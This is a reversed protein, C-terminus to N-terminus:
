AAEAVHTGRGAHKARYLMADARSMLDAVGRDGSAGFAIGVSAGIGIDLSLSALEIPLAAATVVRSAVAEAHAAEHAGCLIVAFEDGGLRAVADQPRVLRQLREAFVRLVADGVPHGHRDNVAKFHDLDIFLLAMSAGDGDSLRRRVHAEFGARNLVGTLADRETLTRLREEEQRHASIDQAVGVFGDLTGNPLRLPVFTISLHQHRGDRSLAKEYTVEHGALARAIWPRTRAFEHEGLVEHMTMERLRDRGLGTWHEFASNVMRFREDRGVVYVMHPIAETVLQLTATQRQVERRDEVRQTIDQVAGVLRIPRGDELEVEGVLRVWLHRGTFTVLPLELDWPEGQSIARDLVQRLLPRADEGYFDIATDLSPAFGEPVEHLRHTQASWTLRETRLDVEWGGVGAVRGTRRLMQESEGLSTEYETRISMARTVLDRRMVLAQSAIAALSVLMQTQREDLMQSRRDLVCLTGVREGGPMVLPAGAYFRISDGLVAPHSAFRDDLTADPVEFVDDSAIAYNCFAIDRPTENVGPMGLNAKFWQREEDVLSLLAIPSGCIESAMKVIADFVPERESDLVFLERLRAMRRAEDTSAPDVYPKM